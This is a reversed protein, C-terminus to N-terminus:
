GKKNETETSEKEETAKANQLESIAEYCGQIFVGIQRPDKQFADLMTIMGRYYKILAEREEPTFDKAKSTSFLNNIEM